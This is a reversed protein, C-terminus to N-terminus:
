EVREILTIPVVLLTGDEIRLRVARARTGAAFVQQRIFLHDVVRVVGEHEGSCVRVRAGLALATCPQVPNWREQVEQESLSILLEPFIKHRASTTGSLMTAEGGGREVRLVPRDPWVEQDPSVM